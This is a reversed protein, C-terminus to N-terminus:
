RIVKRQNGITVVIYLQHLKLSRGTNTSILIALRYRAQRLLRSDPTLTHPQLLSSFREPGFGSSIQRM